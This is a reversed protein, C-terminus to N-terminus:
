AVLTQLIKIADFDTVAGGFRKRFRYLVKPVQTYPDILVTIGLRDVITYGARFNGFAIALANNAIAPMDDAFVVPNGLVQKGAGTSLMDGFRLLYQDQQDKLTLIRAFSRRKLMWVAGGQYPEKLLNQLEILDDAAFGTASAAAAPLVGLTGRQYSDPDSAAPLTLFGQAEDVNNGLVFDRNETRAFKDTAKDATWGVVDRTADELTQETIPVRASIGRIPIRLEGTQPTDVTTPPRLENDHVAELEEDDISIVVESTGTTISNALQRMPSTEFIRTIMTAIHDVPVWFGGDANSGTVLTKGLAEITKEVTGDDARPLYLKVMERVNEEAAERDVVAARKRMWPVFSKLYEPARQQDSNGGGGGKAVHKEIATLREGIVEETQTAATMKQQLDQVLQLATLSDESSKSWKEQDLGDYKKALDEQAERNANIAKIADDFKQKIEQELESM